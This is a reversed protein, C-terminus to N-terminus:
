WGSRGTSVCEKGVRREESRRQTLDALSARKGAVKLLDSNRGLLSFHEDDHLELQDQLPTPGPLHDAHVTAIGGAVTLRMDALLHWREGDTTRRTATSGAETCGYIEYVPVQWAAECAQALARALPATSTPM